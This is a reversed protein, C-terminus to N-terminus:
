AVRCTRPAAPIQCTRGSPLPRPASAVVAAVAVPAVATVVLSRDAVSYGAVAQALASPAVAAVTASFDPAAHTAAAASTAAPAAAIVAAAFVPPAHTAAAASTAAPASASVQGAFQPAAHTVAAASAAAPATASVVASFAPPAHTAAAASIAAPATAAASISFTSSTAAPKLACQFAAWDNNAQTVGAAGTAGAVSWIRHSAYTTQGTVSVSGILSEYGNTPNSHALNRSDSLTTLLGMAGPTVITISPATVATGSAASAANIALPPVDWISATDVGRYVRMLGARYQSSPGFNFNYNAPENATAVRSYLTFQASGLSLYLAEDFANAGNNDSARYSTYGNTHAWVLVVDGEAVGASAFSLTSGNGEILQWGLAQIGM